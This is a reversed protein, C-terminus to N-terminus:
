GLLKIACELVEQQNKNTTDIIHPLFPIKEERSKYIYAKYKEINEHLGMSTHARHRTPMRDLFRKYLIEIDGRLVLVFVDYGYEESLEKIKAMEQEHFNAELILEQGQKAFNIFANIMYDVAMASLKLNEERTTFGYM